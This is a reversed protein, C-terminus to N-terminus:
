NKRYYGDFLEEKTISCNERKTVNEYASLMELNSKSGIVTPLINDKFGQVISYKHDLHSKRSRKKGKSIEKQYLKYNKETIKNVRYKYLRFDRLDVIAMRERKDEYCQRCRKGQSWNNWTIFHRHNNKCIVEIRFQSPYVAKEYEEGATIVEYGESVLMTMIDEFPKHIGKVDRESKRSRCSRCMQKEYNNWGELNQLVSSKTMNIKDKHSCDEQDCTFKVRLGKHTLIEENSVLFHYVIKGGIKKPKWTDLISM